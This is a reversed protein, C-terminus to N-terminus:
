EKDEKYGKWPILYHKLRYELDEIHKELERQKVMWEETLESFLKTSSDHLLELTHVRKELDLVKPELMEEDNM